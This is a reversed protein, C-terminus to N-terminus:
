PIKRYKSLRQTFIRIQVVIDRIRFRLNLYVSKENWERIHAVCHVRCGDIM